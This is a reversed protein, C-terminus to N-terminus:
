YTCLDGVDADPFWFHQKTLAVIEALLKRIQKIRTPTPALNRKPGPSQPNQASLWSPKSGQCVQSGM